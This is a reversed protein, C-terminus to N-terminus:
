GAFRGVDIFTLYILLGILLLFGITHIMAEIKPDLKRRTIVEALAFVIRGGDLAPLPLLNFIGLNITLVAVFVLISEMGMKSAVGVMRAIGVPGAVEGSAVSKFFGKGFLTKWTLVLIWNCRAISIDLREVISKPKYPKVEPEFLTPDSLIRSVQNKSLSHSVIEENRLVNVSVTQPAGYSWWDVKKGVLELYVDDEKMSVYRSVRIFDLWGNIEYGDISIIRDGRMFPPSDNRFVPSLGSFIFGVAYREPVYYYDELVGDLQSKTFYVRVRSNLLNKLYDPDPKEINELSVFNGIVTGTASTLYLDIQPPILYPKIKLVKRHANRLVTMEIEKGEKILQSIVNADFVYNDNIQLIIDGKRLGAQQAPSNPLV